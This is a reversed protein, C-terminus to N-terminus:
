LDELLTLLGRWTTPLASGGETLDLQVDFLGAGLDGSLAGDLPCLIEGVAGTLTVEDATLRRRTAAPQTEGPEVRKRISVEVETVSSLDDLDGADDTMTWALDVPRGAVGEFPLPDQALASSM